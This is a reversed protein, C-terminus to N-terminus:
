LACLVDFLLSKNLETERKLLLIKFLLLLLLIFFLPWTSDSRVEMFKLFSIAASMEEM